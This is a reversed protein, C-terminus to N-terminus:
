RPLLGRLRNEIERLGKEAVEPTSAHSVVIACTEEEEAIPLPPAAVEGMGYVERLAEPSPRGTGMKSFIACGAYSFNQPLNRESAAAVMAQALNINMVKRLGIYSTTVRPNIEVVLPGKKTLLCDVGIYGRLCFAEVAKRAAKLAEERFPHYLPVAGGYYGSNSNPGALIVKQENLSLPLAREGDSILSVSAAIGQVLSQILFHRAQSERMLKEVADFVQTEDMVVSLGCCGIGVVPKFVLPYDLEYAVKLVKEIDGELDIIRTEPTRIGESQLTDCVKMKDSVSLITKSSSNLSIVKSVKEVEKVLDPLSGDTEPAIILAVDVRVLLDRLVSILKSRSPPSIVEDAALPPNLIAIRPDLLTVVESGAAKFDAITSGLMAFGESLVGSPLSRGLFGGGTLHEYILVKM